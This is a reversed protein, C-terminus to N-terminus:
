EYEQDIDSVGPSPTTDVDQLLENDSKDSSADLFSASPSRASSDFYNMKIKRDGNKDSDDGSLVPLKPRRFTSRASKAKRVDDGRQAISATHNDLDVPCAGDWIDDVGANNITTNMEFNDISVYDQDDIDDTDDDGVNELTMYVETDNNGSGQELNITRYTDLRKISVSSTDSAKERDDVIKDLLKSTARDLRLMSNSKSGGDGSELDVDVISEDNLGVLNSLKAALMRNKTMSYLEHGHSASPSPSRAMSKVRINSSEALDATDWDMAIVGTPAELIHYPKNRELPSISRHRSGSSWPFISAWEDRVDKCMLCQHVFLLAGLLLGSFAAMGQIAASSTKHKAFAISGWCTLMLVTYIATGVIAIRGSKRSQAKSPEVQYSRHRKRLKVFIGVLLMTTIAVSLLCPGALVIWFLHGDFMCGIADNDTGESMTPVTQDLIVGTMALCLPVAWGVFLKFRDTHIMGNSDNMSVVSYLVHVNILMWNFSAMIFLATFAAVLICGETSTVVSSMLICVQAFITAVAFNVVLFRRHHRRLTKFVFFSLTTIALLVISVTFAAIVTVNWVVQNADASSEGLDLDISYITVSNNDGDIDPAENINQETDQVSFSGIGTCQCRITEVEVRVLICNSDDWTRYGNSQDGDATNWSTCLPEFDTTKNTSFNNSNPLEYMIAVTSLAPAASNETAVSLVPRNNIILGNNFFSDDKFYITSIWFRQLDQELLYPNMFSLDAEIKPSNIALLPMFNIFKSSTPWTSADFTFEELEQVVNDTLSRLTHVESQGSKSAEGRAYLIGLNTLLAPFRYEQALGEQGARLSMISASEMLQAVIDLVLQMLQKTLFRGDDVISQLIRIVVQVDEKGLASGGRIIEVLIKATLAAIVELPLSPAALETALASIESNVCDLVEEQMWTGDTTCVRSASGTRGNGCPLQVKHPRQCLEDSVWKVRRDFQAAETQCCQRSSGNDISEEITTLMSSTTSLVGAALISQTCEELQTVDMCEAWCLNIYQIGKSCVPANSNDCNATICEWQMFSNIVPLLDTKSNSNNESPGLPIIDGPKRCEGDVFYPNGMCMAWCENIFTEQQDIVCVPEVNIGCEHLCKVATEDINAEDKIHIGGGCECCAQLADYDNVAFSSISGWRDDWGQGSNGDVACWKMEAYKSCSAGYTDTWKEPFNSCTPAGSTPEATSTSSISTSSTTTDLTTATIDLLNCRDGTFGLSCVCQWSKTQNNSTTNEEFLSAREKTDLLTCKGHVCPSPNCVTPLQVTPVNDVVWSSALQVGGDPRAVLFLGTDIAKQLATTSLIFIESRTDMDESGVLKVHISGFTVRTCLVLSPLNELFLVLNALDKTSHAFEELEFDSFTENGVDEFVVTGLVNGICGDVDGFTTSKKTTNTTSSAAM